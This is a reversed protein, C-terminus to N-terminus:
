MSYQITGQEVQENNFNRRIILYEFYNYPTKIELMM